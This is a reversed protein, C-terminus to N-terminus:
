MYTIVKMAKPLPGAVAEEQLGEKMDDQQEDTREEEAGGELPCLERYRGSQDTRLTVPLM